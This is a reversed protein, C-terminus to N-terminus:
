PALVADALDAHLDFDVALGVRDLVRRVLSGAPTVLRVRRGADHGFRELLTLVALSVFTARRLDVVLPAGAM